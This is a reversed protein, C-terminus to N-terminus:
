MLIRKCIQQKPPLFSPYKKLSFEIIKITNNYLLPYSSCFSTPVPSIVHHKGSPPIRKNLNREKRMISNGSQEGALLHFRRGQGKKVKYKEWRNAVKQQQFKNGGKQLM